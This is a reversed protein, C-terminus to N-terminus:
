NEYLDLFINNFKQMGIPITFKQANKFAFEINPSADIFDTDNKYISDKSLIEPAIGVSTSIIPTKTIACELIAQPGGELRSSVIYLDLINYLQNLKNINLMEFYIFPINNENFKNILYQRRTGALVAKTNPNNEYLKKIINFFIDPGKILKPSSLDSGETDRQFSGVLYDTKQLGFSERLSKKDLINYFNKQNVWFPISVIPKSTLKKLESLNKESIVHYKDVYDDLEYFNKRDELNFKKFDIHYNSCIVKKNILQKKPIKKWVWPAIIWIIDSNKTKNTSINQNEKYWESRLRDIIWDENIKNLYVKM